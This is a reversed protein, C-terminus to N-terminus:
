TSLDLGIELYISPIVEDGFKDHTIADFTM